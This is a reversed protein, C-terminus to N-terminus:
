TPPRRTNDTLDTLVALTGAPLGATVAGDHAPCHYWGAAADLDFSFMVAVEARCEACEVFARAKGTM